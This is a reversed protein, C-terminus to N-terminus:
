WYIFLHFKDNTYINPTYINPVHFYEYGNKDKNVCYDENLICKPELIPELFKVRKEEGKKYVEYKIKM